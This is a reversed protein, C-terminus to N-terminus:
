KQKVLTGIYVSVELTATVAEQQLPRFASVGWYKQLTVYLVDM